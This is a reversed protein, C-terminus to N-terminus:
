FECTNCLINGSTIKERGADTATYTWSFPGPWTGVQGSGSALGRLALWALAVRERPTEVTVTVNGEAALWRLMDRAGPYFVTANPDNQMTM